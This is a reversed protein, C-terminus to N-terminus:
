PRGEPGCGKRRIIVRADNIVAGGTDVVIGSVNNSRESSQGFVPSVAILMLLLCHM